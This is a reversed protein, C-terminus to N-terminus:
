GISWQFICLKCGNTSHEMWFTNGFFYHHPIYGWTAVLALTKYIDIGKTLAYGKAVCYVKHKFVEGEANYQDQLDMQM